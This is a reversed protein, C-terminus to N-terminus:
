LVQEVKYRAVNDPGFSFTHVSANRPPPAVNEFEAGLLIQRVTQIVFGHSVCLVNNGTRTALFDQVRRRVDDPSEGGSATTGLPDKNWAEWEDPWQSAIEKKTRGQWEGHHIEALRWDAVVRQDGAVIRATEETRKLPSAYVRDFAISALHARVAEAQRRGAANLPIDLQGQFRSDVNWDTIGHRVFVLTAM